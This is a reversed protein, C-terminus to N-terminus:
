LWREFFRTFALTGAVSMVVLGLAPAFYLGSDFLVAVILLVLVAIVSALELAILSDM